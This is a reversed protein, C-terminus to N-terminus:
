ALIEDSLDCRTAQVAWLALRIMVAIHHGGVVHVVYHSSMELVLLPWEIKLGSILISGVRPHRRGSGASPGAGPGSTSGAGPGAGISTGIHMGGRPALCSRGSGRLVLPSSAFLRLLLATTFVLKNKSQTCCVYMERLM